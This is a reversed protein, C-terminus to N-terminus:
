EESALSAYDPLGYGRITVDDVSVVHYAVSENYNGEIVKIKNGYTGVVIGVHNAWATNNEATNKTAYFILDGPLPVYADDEEWRGLAEFLAIQRQCGCETPIIGTLECEIAVASEFAACWQDSYQMVYGVALPKHSNYLDIIPKFSEDAENCGLWKEATQVVQMRLTQEAQPIERAFGYTPEPFKFYLECGSLAWLLTLLIFFALIRKM